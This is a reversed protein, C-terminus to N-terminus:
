QPPASPSPNNDQTRVRILNASSTLLGGLVMWGVASRKSDRSKNTELRASKAGAVLENCNCEACTNFTTGVEVRKLEGTPLKLLGNSRNTHLVVCGKLLEAQINQQDFNLSLATQPSL